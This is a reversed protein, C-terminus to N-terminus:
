RSGGCHVCGLKCLSRRGAFYNDEEGDSADLHDVLSADAWVPMLGILTFVFIGVWAARKM